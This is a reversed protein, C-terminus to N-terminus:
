TWLNTNVNEARRHIDHSDGIAGGMGQVVATMRAAAQNWRAQAQTYAARADGDWEALHTRIDGDLQDLAAKFQNLANVFNAQGNQMGGFNVLTYDGM